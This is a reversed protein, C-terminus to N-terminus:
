YNIHEIQTFLYDYYQYDIGNLHLGFVLHSVDINNQVVPSGSNECTNGIATLDNCGCNESNIVEVVLDGTTFNFDTIALDCQGSAMFGHLVLIAILIRKMM